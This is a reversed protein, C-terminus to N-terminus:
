LRVGMRKLNHSYPVVGAKGCAERRAIYQYHSSLEERAEALAVSHMKRKSDKVKKYFTKSLKALTAPAKIKLDRKVDGHRAPTMGAINVKKRVTKAKPCSGEGTKKRVCSESEHTVCEM